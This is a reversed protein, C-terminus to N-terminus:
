VRPFIVSLKFSIQRYIYLTIPIYMYTHTSVPAVLIVNDQYLVLSASCLAADSVKRYTYPTKLPGARSVVSIIGNIFSLHTYSCSCVPYWSHSCPVLPGLCVELGLIYSLKQIHLAQDQIHPHCYMKLPKGESTRVTVAVNESKCFVLSFVVGRAGLLYWTDLARVQLKSLSFFTVVGEPYINTSTFSM